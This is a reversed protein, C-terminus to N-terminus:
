AMQLESNNNSLALQTPAKVAKDMDLPSLMM